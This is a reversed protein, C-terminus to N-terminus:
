GDTKDRDLKAVASRMLFSVARAAELISVDTVAVPNDQNGTLEVSQLDPLSKKLLIEIAKMQSSSVDVSGFVHDQLRNILQSAQIKARTEEDHRIKVTRPAM